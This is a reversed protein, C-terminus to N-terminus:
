MESARELMTGMIDNKLEETMLNPDQHSDDDMKQSLYRTIDGLHAVIHIVNAGKAFHNDLEGLIYPRGTLFLRVNPADHIIQRLARLFEPRHQRLVEDVADVCLYVLEISGIVKVLLKVMDPLRLSEGGEEKSETFASKIENSIRPERLAVQRLFAGIMNVVGQDRQALYDCYLYLVAVNQGRNQGRLTDIVLSSIENNTLM